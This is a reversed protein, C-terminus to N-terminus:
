LTKQLAEADDFDLGQAAASRTRVGRPAGEACANAGVLEGGSEQASAAAVPRGGRMGGRGRAPRGRGRGRRAGPEVCRSRDTPPELCPEDDGDDEKEPSPDMHTLALVGDDEEELSAESDDFRDM